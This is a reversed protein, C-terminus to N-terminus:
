APTQLCLQMDSIRKSTTVTRTGVGSVPAVGCEVKITSNSPTKEDKKNYILEM